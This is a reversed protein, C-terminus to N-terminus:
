IQVKARTFLLSSSCILQTARSFFCVALACLLKPIKLGTIRCSPLTTPLQFALISLCAAFRIVSSKASFLLTLCCLRCSAIFRNISNQLHLSSDPNKQYSLYSLSKIVLLCVSYVDIQRGPPAPKYLGSTM